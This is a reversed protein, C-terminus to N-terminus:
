LFLSGVFVFVGLASVYGICFKVTKNFIKGESGILGTASTAVAISQPSIMKGATAGATNAAALWYPNVHISTAVETQLAGFLINSSTDSGTVFTGLMGIMPAFLPFFRGTIQVLVLAISAIMGSYAMIKAMAVISVVTIASKKLQNMTTGLVLVMERFRAGQIRGGIFTAFIILVGPTAIWKLTTPAAGQGVYIPISSKVHTLMENLDPFLPSSLIVFAFILIYPLWALIGEKMSITQKESSAFKDKKMRKALFITVGMSAISGVLAPLEAGLYKAVLLQPLAFALGSALTIGAVGKIGKVSNTTMMVLIFPVIVIFVVLQLAVNFSLISVNLGTVKALTTVPIGVAGFATPVTNAVLCIVAAFLPDFGLSALISAPIAVATGYGAVAELFGGFGWALILVQIRRDTTIGSLMTKITEMSKTHVALNYTFIAAVIVIMIPWLGIVAGELAATAVLLAPMKWILLALVMTILLTITCAKHAPIRMVGLAIMLGVIPILALAFLVINSM